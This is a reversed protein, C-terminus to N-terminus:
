VGPAEALPIVTVVDGEGRPEKVADRADVRVAEGRLEGVADGAELPDAVGDIPDPEADTLALTAVPVAAM